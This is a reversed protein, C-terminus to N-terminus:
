TPRDLGVICRVLSSKGAGNEGILGTVKGPGISTHIDTLVARTGRQKHLHTITVTVPEARM